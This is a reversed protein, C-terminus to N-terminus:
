GASAEGIENVVDDTKAVRGYGWGLAAMYSNHVQQAAIKEGDFELDLTACADDIVTISFGHDVAARAAADICMHSMAGCIVLDDVARARLDDELSTDRFANIRHKTIVVEDGEPAVSHHIQVGPTGARYAPADTGPMVHRVHFVPLERARFLGLLRAANAAAHQVGVLEMKGGEFYENQLDILLLGKTM